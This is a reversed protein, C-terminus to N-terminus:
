VMGVKVKLILYSFFDDIKTFCYDMKNGSKRIIEILGLGAGGKESFYGNCLTKEYLSHLDTPTMENLKRITDDLMETKDNQIINCTIISYFSNNKSLVLIFSNDYVKDIDEDTHRIINQLCEVMIGFVKKKVKTSETTLNLRTEGVGLAKEVSEVDMEGRYILLFEQDRMYGYIDEMREVFIMQKNPIETM